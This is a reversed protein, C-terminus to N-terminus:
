AGEGACFLECRVTCLVAERQCRLRTPRRGPKEHYTNESRRIALAAQDEHLRQLIGPNLQPYNGAETLASDPSGLRSLTLLRGERATRNNPEIALAQNYAKLASINNGAQHELSGRTLYVQVWAPRADQIFELHPRAEDFKGADILAAALELRVKLNNPELM